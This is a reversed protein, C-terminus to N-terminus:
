TEDSLRKQFPGMLNIIASQSPHITPASTSQFTPKIRSPPNVLRKQQSKQLFIKKPQQAFGPCAVAVAFASTAFTAATRLPLRSDLTPLQPSSRAGSRPRSAPEERPESHFSLFAFALAVAVAIALVPTEGSRRLSAGGTSIVFM